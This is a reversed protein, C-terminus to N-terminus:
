IAFLRCSWLCWIGVQGAQAVNGIQWIIEAKRESAAIAEELKVTIEGQVATNHLGDLRLDEFRTALNDLQKEYGYVTSRVERRLSANDAVLKENDTM